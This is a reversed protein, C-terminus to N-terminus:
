LRKACFRFPRAPTLVSPFKYGFQLLLRGRRIEEVEVPAAFVQEIESRLMEPPYQITAPHGTIAAAVADAVPFVLREFRYFWPAVCSEVVIIRGGPRVVRHAERLARRINEISEKVNSGILHHILMVMVACDFSHDAEPINLASGVKLTVNPPQRYGPPMEDLFLDIATIERVLKADYDCVGGNGIDIVRDAGVIVENISTRIRTYTEMGEINQRYSSLRDRFFNVNLEVTRDTQGRNTKPSV